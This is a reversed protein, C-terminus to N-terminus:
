RPKEVRRWVHGFYRLHYGVMKKVIPAVEVKETICQNMIKDQRIHSSIWHLIRMKAVNRKNEQQSKIAWDTEYMMEPKITICYFNEKLKLKHDQQNKDGM